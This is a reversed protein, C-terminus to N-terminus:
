TQRPRPKLEDVNKTRVRELRERVIDIYILALHVRKLTDGFVGELKSTHDGNLKIGLTKPSFDPMPQFRAADANQKDKDKEGETEAQRQKKRAAEVDRRLNVRLNQAYLFILVDAFILVKEWEALTLLAVKKAKAWPDGIPHNSDDKWDVGRDDLDPLKSALESVSQQMEDYIGGMVELHILSSLCPGIGWLFLLRSRILRIRRAEDLGDDQGPAAKRTDFMSSFIKNDENLNIFAKRSSFKENEWDVTSIASSLGIVPNKLGEDKMNEVKISLINRERVRLNKPLSIKLESGDNKEFIDLGWTKDSEDLNDDTGLCYRKTDLADKSRPLDSKERLGLVARLTKIGILRYRNNRSHTFPKPSARKDNENNGGEEARSQDGNSTSTEMTERALEISRDTFAYDNLDGEFIRLAHYSRRVDDLIRVYRPVISVVDDALLCPHKVFEGDGANALLDQADEYLEAYTKDRKENKEDKKAKKDKDVRRLGLKMATRTLASRSFGRYNETPLSLLPATRGLSAQRIPDALLRAGEDIWNIPRNRVNPRIQGKLTNRVVDFSGPKEERLGLNCLEIDILIANDVTFEDPPIPPLLPFSAYLLVVKKFYDERPDASGINFITDVYRVPFQGFTRRGDEKDTDWEWALDPISRLDKLYLCNAPVIPNSFTRAIGQLDQRLRVTEWKGDKGKEEGFLRDNYEFEIKEEDWHRWIEPTWVKKGSPVPLLTIPFSPNEYPRYPKALELDLRFLIYFYSRNKQTLDLANIRITRNGRWAGVVKQANIWDMVNADHDALRQVIQFNLPETFIAVAVRRSDSSMPDRIPDQEAVMDAFQNIHRASKPILYEAYHNRILWLALYDEGANKKIPAYNKNNDNELNSRETGEGADEKILHRLTLLKDNLRKSMQSTCFEIFSHPTPKGAELKDGKGERESGLVGRPSWIKLLQAFDGEDLKIFNRRQRPFVKTLYEELNDREFERWFTATYSDRERLTKFAESMDTLNASLLKHRTTHLNAAVVSVIRPHCFFLRISHLLDVTLHRSIDTDDVFIGLLMADFYDLYEVVFERWADIREHSSRAEDARREIYDEFSMSDHMLAEVGMSRAFYWGKAVGSNLKRKLKRGEELKQEDRAQREARDLEDIRAELKTLMRSFIAEMITESVDMDDPKILPLCHISMRSEDGKGLVEPCSFDSGGGAPLINRWEMGSTKSSRQDHSYSELFGLITKGLSTKGSGRIGDILFTFVPERRRIDDLYASQDAKASFPYREEKHQNEDRAIQLIQMMVRRLIKKQKPLLDEIRTFESVGFRKASRHAGDSDSDNMEM